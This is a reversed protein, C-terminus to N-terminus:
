KIRKAKVPRYPGDIHVKDHLELPEDWEERDKELVALATKGHREIMWRRLNFYLVQLEEPTSFKDVAKVVEDFTV